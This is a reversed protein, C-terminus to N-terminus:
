DKVKRLNYESIMRDFFRKMKIKHEDTFNAPDEGEIEGIFNNVQSMLFNYKQLETKIQNLVM